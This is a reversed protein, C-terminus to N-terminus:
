ARSGLYVVAMGGRGIAREIRYPGLMRGAASEEAIVSAAGAQLAELLDCEETTDHPTDYRLLNLVEERLEWDDGCTQRLFAEREGAPMDVAAEFLADLAAWRAAPLPERLRFGGQNTM